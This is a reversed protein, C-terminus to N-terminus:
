SRGNYFLSYHNGDGFRGGWRCLEHRQEWWEGLTRHSETSTLYVWRGADENWAFLNLDVALRLPHVSSASGRGDAAYIAVTEPPRWAEGLTVQYGQREAEILLGALLRAFLSQKERLTV